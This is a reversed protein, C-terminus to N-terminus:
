RTWPIMHPNSYGNRTYEHKPAKYARDGKKGTTLQEKEKRRYQRSNYTSTTRFPYETPITFKYEGEKSFTVKLAKEEPLSPVIKTSFNRLSCERRFRENWAYDKKTYSCFYEECMDYLDQTMAIGYRRYRKFASKWAYLEDEICEKTANGMFGHTYKQYGEKTHNQKTTLHGLEHLYHLLNEETNPWPSQIGIPINESNLHASSSEKNEDLLPMFGILKRDLM